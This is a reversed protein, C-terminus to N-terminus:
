PWTVTQDITHGCVEGRVTRRKANLDTVTEIDIVCRGSRGDSASWNLAGKAREIFPETAAGGAVAAHSEFSLNPDGDVTFTVTNHVFACEDPTLVGEADFEFSAVGEDFSLTASLEIAIRGSVPCPHSSKHEITITGPPAVESSSAAALAANRSGTSASSGAASVQNALGLAEERALPDGTPGTSDSCAAALGVAGLVGIMMRRM